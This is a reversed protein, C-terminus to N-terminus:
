NKHMSDSRQVLAAGAAEAFTWGFRPVTRIGNTTLGGLGDEWNACPKIAILALQWAPL